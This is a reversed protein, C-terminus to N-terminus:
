LDRYLDNDYIFIKTMKYLAPGRISNIAAFGGDWYLRENERRTFTGYNILFIYASYNVFRVEM